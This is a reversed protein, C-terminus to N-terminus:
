KKRSRPHAQDYVTLLRDVSVQTYKQTTSLSAHGLLEQIVRLDAGGDLLHTAFSHRLAHPTAKKLIGAKILWQKLIREVSRSTLRGGRHNLFLPQNEVPGGRRQLYDAIAQRARRGVPIIREKRGKGLTRVLGQDLDVDWTDLATLESVRLGSSYLLEFIARDRLSLTGTGYNQDLLHFIEDVTLTQPLYRERRPSSVLEAPNSAAVGERVLFRFFSRLASLKRHMTSRRTDRHLQALYRRLMLVDVATVDVPADRSHKELFEAFGSLDGAYASVTHPSANREVRLHNLFREVLKEM